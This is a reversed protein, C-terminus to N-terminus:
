TNTIFVYLHGDMHKIRRLLKHIQKIIYRIYEASAIAHQVTRIQRNSKRRKLEVELVSKNLVYKSAVIQMGSVSNRTKTIRLRISRVTYLTCYLRETKWSDERGTKTDSSRFLESERVENTDSSQFPWSELKFSLIGFDHFFFTAFFLFLNYM